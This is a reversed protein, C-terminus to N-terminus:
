LEDSWCWFNGHAPQKSKHIVSTERLIQRGYTDRKLEDKDVYVVNCGPDGYQSLYSEITQDGNWWITILADHAKGYHDVYIVSQGVKYEREM